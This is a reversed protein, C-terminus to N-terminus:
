LLKALNSYECALQGPLVQFSDRFSPRFTVKSLIRVYLGLLEDSQAVCSSFVDRELRIFGRQKHVRDESEGEQYSQM